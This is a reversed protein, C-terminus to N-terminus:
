LDKRKEKIVHPVHEPKEYKKPETFRGQQNEEKLHALWKNDSAADYYEKWSLIEFM